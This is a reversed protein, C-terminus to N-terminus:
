HERQFEVWASREHLIRALARGGPSGAVCTTYSVIEDYIHREVPTAADKSSAKYRVVELALTMDAICCIILHPGPAVPTALRRPEANGEVHRVSRELDHLSRDSALLARRYRPSSHPGPKEATHSTEGARFRRLLAYCKLSNTVDLMDVGDFVTGSDRKSVFPNRHDITFIATTLRAVCANQFASTSCTIDLFRNM